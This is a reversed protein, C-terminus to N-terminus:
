KSSRESAMVKVLGAQLSAVKNRINKVEKEVAKSKDLEKPLVEITKSLGQLEKVLQKKENVLSM